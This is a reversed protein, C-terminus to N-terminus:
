WRLEYLPDGYLLQWLVAEEDESQVVDIARATDYGPISAGAFNLRAGHLEGWFCRLPQWAPLHKQIQM